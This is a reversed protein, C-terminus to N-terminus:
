TSLSGKADRGGGGGGEGKVVVGMGRRLSERGGRRLFLVLFAANVIGRYM